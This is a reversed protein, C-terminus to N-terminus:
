GGGTGPAQSDVGPIEFLRRIEGFGELDLTIELAEPLPFAGQQATDVGWSRPWDETDFDRPDLPVGQGLFAVSFRKVGQLMEVRTPETEDTRDLVPFSERWLIEDELRYRVRQMHSRPYGNPNHWGTRTFNISDAALEGGFLAPEMTGLEDRVPRNVFQRLDRSLFTWTRNIEVAQDSARRLGELGNILNSFTMFALTVIMVTAAMAILVEILTFGRQWYRYDAVM